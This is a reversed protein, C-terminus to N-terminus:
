FLFSFFIMLGAAAFIFLANTVTGSEPLNSAKTPKITATASASQTPSVTKALVIETPTPTALPSPSVSAVAILTPVATPTVTVTNFAITKSYTVSQAKTKRPAILSPTESPRTIVYGVGLVAAMLVLTMLLM